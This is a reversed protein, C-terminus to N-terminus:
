RVTVAKGDVDFTGVQDLYYAGKIVIHTTGDPGTVIGGPKVKVIDGVTYTPAKDESM